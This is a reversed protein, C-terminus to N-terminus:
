PQRRDRLDIVEVLNRIAALEAKADHFWETNEDLVWDMGILGVSQTNWREVACFVALTGNSPKGFKPGFSRWYSQWRHYNARWILASKGPPDDDPHHKYVM